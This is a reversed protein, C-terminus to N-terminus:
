YMSCGKVSPETVVHNGDGVEGDVRIVTYFCVDSDVREIVLISMKHKVIASVAMPKVM